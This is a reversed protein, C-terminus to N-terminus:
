VGIITNIVGNVKAFEDEKKRDTIATYIESTTRINTHGLLLSIMKMSVNNEYLLTAYTHRFMHPTVNFEVGHRKLYQKFKERFSNGDIPYGEDNLFIWDQYGHECVKKYYEVDARVVRHWEDVVKIVTESVLNNRVSGATKTDCVQYRESGQKTRDIKLQKSISIRGDSLDSYRLALVESLRAGTGLLVKAFTLYRKNDKLAELIASVQEVTFTKENPTAKEKGAPKRIRKYSIRNMKLGEDECYEIVAKFVKYTESITKDSYVDGNDKYKIGSVFRQVAETDIDEAYVGDFAKKIRKCLNEYWEVTNDRVGSLAKFDLFKQIMDNFIHKSKNRVVPVDSDGRKIREFEYQVDEKTDGSIVKRKKNGGDDELYFAIQWKGRSKNFFVSGKGIVNIMDFEKESVESITPPNYRQPTTKDVPSLSNGKLFEELEILSILQVSDTEMAKIKKEHVWRNIEEEPVGIEKSVESFTLALRSYKQYLIDLM